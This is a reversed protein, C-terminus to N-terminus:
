PSWAQHVYLLGGITGAKWWTLSLCVSCYTCTLQEGSAQDRYPDSGSTIGWVGTQHSGLRLRLGFSWSRLVRPFVILVAKLTIYVKNAPEDEQVVDVDHTAKLAACQHALSLMINVEQPPIM